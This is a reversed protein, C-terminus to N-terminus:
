ERWAWLGSQGGITQVIEMGVNELAALEAIGSDQTVLFIKQREDILAQVEELTYVDQSKGNRYFQLGYEMWRAPKFLVVTQEEPVVGALAANWPRMSDTTEFRPFVFNTTIVVCVIMTLVNLAALYPPKLWTAVVVLLAGVIFSLMAILRGDVHPDVDLTQGFFGFAIGVFVMMGAEIFTAIRFPRSSAGVISRGYLMALPAISPLIYGPLKSGSFSFFVVPVMAWSLLLWDNKDMSRRIAPLFLFTWPFTLMMLVPIYFYIPRQHGHITSTFRQVNHNLFFEDIFPYGNASIVAVFWPIAIAISLFVGEPHWQKWEGPRARFLRFAVLSLLPLMLGVPGKALVALGLFAWFAYFWWRRGPGASNNGSLFCLIALTLCATLPMDMSAAHAFAFFGASSALILASWFATSRGWLRTGVYYTLFVCATAGLASPFRAAFESTGFIAFAIAAGWYVLAPKEFWPLGFLKPTIFDGSLYMHRAVDAYRPEDPGLLGIGGLQHFFLVYCVATLAILIVPHSPRDLSHHQM